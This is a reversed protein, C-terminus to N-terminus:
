QLYCLKLVIYQYQIKILYCRLHIISSHRVFPSWCNQIFPKTHFSGAVCVCVQPVLHTSLCNLNMQFIHKNLFMNSQMFSLPILVSSMLELAYGSSFLCNYALPYNTIIAVTAIMMRTLINQPIATIIELIPNIVSKPITTAPTLSQPIKVVDLYEDM